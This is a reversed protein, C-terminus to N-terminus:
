IRVSINIPSDRHQNDIGVQIDGVIREFPVPVQELGNGFYALGFGAHRLLTAAQVHHIEGFQPAAPDAEEKDRHAAPKSRHALAKGPHTGLVNGVGLALALQGVVAQHLGLSDQALYAIPGFEVGMQGLPVVIRLRGRQPKDEAHFPRVANHCGFLHGLPPIFTQPDHTQTM